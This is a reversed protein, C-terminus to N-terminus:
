LGATHPLLPFSLSIINYYHADMVLFKLIFKVEQETLFHIPLMRGESDVLPLYTVHSDCSRNLWVGAQSPQVSDM